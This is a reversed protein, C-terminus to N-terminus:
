GGFNELQTKAIEAFFRWPCNAHFSRLTEKADEIQDADFQEQAKLLVEGLHKSWARENGRLDLVYQAFEDASVFKGSGRSTDGMVKTVVEAFLVRSEDSFQAAIEERSQGAFVHWKEILQERANM